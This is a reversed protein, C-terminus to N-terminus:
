KGECVELCALLSICASLVNARDRFGAVSSVGALRVPKLGVSSILSMTSLPPAGFHSILKPYKQEEYVAECDRRDCLIWRLSLEHHL